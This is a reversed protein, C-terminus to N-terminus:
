HLVSVLQGDRQGRQALWHGAAPRCRFHPIPPCCTSFLVRTVACPDCCVVPFVLCGDLAATALQLEATLGGKYDM